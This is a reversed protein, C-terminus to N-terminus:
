KDEMPSWYAHSERLQKAVRMAQESARARERMEQLSDHWCLDLREPDGLCQVSDSPLWKQQSMASDVRETQAHWDLATFLQETGGLSRTPDLSLVDDHVDEPIEDLLEEGWRMVLERWRETADKHAERYEQAEDQALLKQSIQERVCVKADRLDSSILHLAGRLEDIERQAEKLKEDAHTSVPEAHVLQVPPEARSPSKPVLALPARPYPQLRRIVSMVPDSVEADAPATATAATAASGFVLVAQERAEPRAEFFLPLKRAVWRNRVDTKASVGFAEQAKNGSKFKEGFYLALACAIVKPEPRSTPAVLPPELKAEEMMDIIARAAADETATPRSAAKAADPLLLEALTATRARKQPRM